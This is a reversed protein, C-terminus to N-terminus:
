NFKSLSFNLPNFEVKYGNLNASNFRRIEPYFYITFFFRAVSFLYIAPIYKKMGAM